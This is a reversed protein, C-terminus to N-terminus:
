LLPVLEALPRKSAASMPPHEYCAVPPPSITVPGLGPEYVSSLRALGKGSDNVSTRILVALWNRGDVRKQAHDSWSEANTSESKDNPAVRGAIVGEPTRIRIAIPVSASPGGCGRGGWDSGGGLSGAWSRHRRRTRYCVTESAKAPDVQQNIWAMRSEIWMLQSAALDLLTLHLLFDSDGSQRSAPM